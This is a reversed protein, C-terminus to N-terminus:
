PVHGGAMSRVPYEVTTVNNFGVKASAGAALDTRLDCFPGHREGGFVWAILQTLKEEL